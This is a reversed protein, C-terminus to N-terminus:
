TYYENTYNTKKPKNDKKKIIVAKLLYPIHFDIIQNEININSPM